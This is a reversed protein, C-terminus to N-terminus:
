ARLPGAALWFSFIDAAKRGLQCPADAAHALSGRYRCRGALAPFSVIPDRVHMGGSPWVTIRPAKSASFAAPRDASPPPRAVRVPVARVPEM